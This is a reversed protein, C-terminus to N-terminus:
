ALNQIYEKAALAAVSGDAAATVIQRVQKTRNDGAAFVGPINTRCDEGSEIYGYSDLRIQGELVRTNPTSGIAVFVGSVPVERRIHDNTNEVLLREVSQSGQVESVVSSTLFTVNERQRLQRLAHEEGRFDERRHILYVQNALDSLVLADDVAVNGGGIVAVDKGKYFAGDCTACFSIGRGIFEEGGPCDLHRPTAGTALIVAKAERVGGSTIIKKPSGDLEVSQVTEYVFSVGLNTAQEYLAMAFDAGSVGPMGPYNEISTTTIIQGGYIAQELVEVSLGARVGYIAATLGATGAGAILLDTM